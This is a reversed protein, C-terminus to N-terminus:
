TENILVCVLGHMEFDNERECVLVRVCWYAFVGVCVWVWGCGCVCAPACVCVCM